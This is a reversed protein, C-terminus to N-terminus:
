FELQPLRSFKTKAGWSRCVLSLTSRFQALWDVINALAIKDENSMNAFVIFPGSGNPGGSSLARYIFMLVLIGIVQGPTM